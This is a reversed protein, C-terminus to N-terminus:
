LAVVANPCSILWNSWTTQRPDFAALLMPDREPRECGATKYSILAESEM